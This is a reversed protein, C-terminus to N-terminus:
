GAASRREEAQMQEASAEMHMHMVGPAPLAVHVLGLEYACWDGFPHITYGYSFKVNRSYEGVKKLWVLGKHLGGPPFERQPVCRSESAASWRPTKGANAKM